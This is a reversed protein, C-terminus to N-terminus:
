KHCNRTPIFNRLHVDTNGSKNKNIKMIIIKNIHDSYQLFIRNM